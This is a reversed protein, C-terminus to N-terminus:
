AIAAPIASAAGDQGSSLDGCSTWTQWPAVNVADSILYQELVFPTSM